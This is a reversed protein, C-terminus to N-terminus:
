PKGHRIPAFFLSFVFSSYHFSIFNSYDVSLLNEDSEEGYLPRCQQQQGDYHCDCSFRCSAHLSIGSRFIRRTWKINFIDQWSTWHTKRPCPPKYLEMCLVKAGFKMNIDTELRM